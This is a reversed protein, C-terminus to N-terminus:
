NFVPVPVGARELIAAIAASHGRDDQSAYVIEGVPDILIYANCYLEGDYGLTYCYCDLAIYGHYAAIKELKLFKLDWTDDLDNDPGWLLFNIGDAGDPIGDWSRAGIEVKVIRGCAQICAARINKRMERNSKM